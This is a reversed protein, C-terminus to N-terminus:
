CRQAEALTLEDNLLRAAHASRQCAGFELQGIGGACNEACVVADVGCIGCAEDVDVFREGNAAGDNRLFQFGGLTESQICSELLNENLGSLSVHEGKIIHWLATQLNQLQVLLRVSWNCANCESDSTHVALTDACERSVLIALNENGIQAASERCCLGLSTLAAQLHLITLCRHQGNGVPAAGANRNMLYIKNRFVADVINREDEIVCVVVCVM